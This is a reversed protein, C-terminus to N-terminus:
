GNAIELLVEAHCPKPSCWCVLDKGKLTRRVWERMEAGEDSTLWDRFSAIAAGRPLAQGAFNGYVTTRDVLVAERPVYDVRANYIRPRDM